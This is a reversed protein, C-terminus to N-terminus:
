VPFCLLGRITIRDSAHVYHFLGAFEGPLSVYSAGDVKQFLRTAMPSSLASITGRCRWTTSNLDVFHSGEGIPTM